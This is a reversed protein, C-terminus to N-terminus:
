WGGNSMSVSVFTLLLQPCLAEICFWAGVVVNSVSVAHDRSTWFVDFFPAKCVLVVWGETTFCGIDAGHRRRSQKVWHNNDLLMTVM